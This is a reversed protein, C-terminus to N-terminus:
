HTAIDATQANVAAILDKPALDVQFGVRGASVCIREQGLASNDIVTRFLKKM